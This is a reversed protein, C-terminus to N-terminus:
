FATSNGKKISEHVKRERDRDPLDSLDAVELIDLPNNKSIRQVADGNVSHFTTQLVEHRGIIAAIAQELATVDLVGKLQYVAPINYMSSNPKYKDLFWLRQQSFSLPASYDNRPLIAEEPDALESQCRSIERTLGAVTPAEFLTRLPLDVNFADRLKSMVQTAILSHGGLDFFNDHIGVREVRLIEVWIKALTEEVPTRPAM